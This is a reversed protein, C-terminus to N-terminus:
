TAGDVISFTSLQSPQDRKQDTRIVCVFTEFPLQVQPKKAMRVLDSITLKDLIHQTVPAVSVQLKSEVWM